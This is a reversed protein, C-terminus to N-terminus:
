ISLSFKIAVRILPDMETALELHSVNGSSIHLLLMGECLQDANAASGIWNCTTLNVVSFVKLNEFNKMAQSDYAVFNPLIPDFNAESM